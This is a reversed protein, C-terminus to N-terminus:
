FSTGFLKMWVLLAGQYVPPYTSYIEKGSIPFVVALSPNCYHGNLLFNVVGGDYAFADVDPVPQMTFVLLLIRWLLVLGLIFFPNQFRFKV